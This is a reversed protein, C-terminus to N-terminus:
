GPFITVRNSFSLCRITLLNLIFLVPYSSYSYSVRKMRFSSCPAHYLSDPISYVTAFKLFTREFKVSIQQCDDIYKDPSSKEFYTIGDATM